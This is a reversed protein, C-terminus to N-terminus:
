SEVSYNFTSFIDSGNFDWLDKAEFSLLERIEPCLSLRDALRATGISYSSALGLSPTRMSKPSSELPM